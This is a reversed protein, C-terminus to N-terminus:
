GGKLENDIELKSVKVGYTALLKTMDSENSFIERQVSNLKEEADEKTEGLIDLDFSCFVYYRKM